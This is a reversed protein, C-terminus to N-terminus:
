VSRGVGGGLVFNVMDWFRLIVRFLWEHLFHAGSWNWDVRCIQDSRLPPLTWIDTTPFCGSFVLYVLFFPGFSGGFASFHCLYFFYFMFYKLIYSLSHVWIRAIESILIWSCFLFFFLSPLAPFWSFHLVYFVCAIYKYLIHM